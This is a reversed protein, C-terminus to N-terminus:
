RSILDRPGEGTEVHCQVCAPLLVENQNLFFEFEFGQVHARHCDLCTLITEEIQLLAEAGAGAPWDEPYTLEGTQEYATQAAPLKNHFHNEFGVLTLTDQHCKLCAANLVDPTRTFHEPGRWTAQNPNVAPMSGREVTEDGGGAFYTFTDGAALMLVRGRHALSDDGRHCDICRFDPDDWAHFAALDPLTFPDGITYAAQRRDYYMAEPARHCSTCFEDQEELKSVGVASGVALLLVGGVLFPWWQTLIQSFKRM